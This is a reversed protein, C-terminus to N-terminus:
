ISFIRFVAIVKGKMQKKTQPGLTRSDIGTTRKDALIYYEDENLQVPYRTNKDPFTKEEIEPEYCLSGNVMLEGDENFSITDGGVAAIRGTYEKGNADYVVVDGSICTNQIRQYLILDGHLLSPKMNEGHVLTVGYIMQFVLLFTALLVFFHFCLKKVAMRAKKQNNNEAKKM